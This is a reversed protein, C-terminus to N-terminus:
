WCLTCLEARPLRRTCTDLTLVLIGRVDANGMRLGWCLFCVNADPKLVDEFNFPTQAM